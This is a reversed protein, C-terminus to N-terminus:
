SYVLEIEEDFQLATNTLTWVSMFQDVTDCELEQVGGASGYITLYRGPINIEVKTVHQDDAWTEIDFTM